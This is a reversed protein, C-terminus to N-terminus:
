SENSKYGSLKTDIQRDIVVSPPDIKVQYALVELGQDFADSLAASYKEDIEWAPEFIDADSRNIVFILVARHGQRKVDLLENIHKLGRATIADPFQYTGSSSVLSVNKVEVYCLGKIPDELLLDIRSKKEIGYKVERRM